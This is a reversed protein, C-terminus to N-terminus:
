LCQIHLHDRNFDRQLFGCDQTYCGVHLSLAVLSSLIELSQTNFSLGSVAGPCYFVTPTQVIGELPQMVNQKRVTINGVEGHDRHYGCPRKSVRHALLCCM